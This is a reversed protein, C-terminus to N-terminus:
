QEDEGETGCQILIAVSHAFQAAFLTTLFIVPLYYVHILSQGGLVYFPVICIGALLILTVCAALLFARRHIMKEREDFGAEIAWRRYFVLFPPVVLGAAVFFILAYVIGKTALQTTVAFGLGALFVCGAMVVLNLWAAKQLRNM